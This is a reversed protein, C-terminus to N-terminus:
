SSSFPSTGHCRQVKRKMSAVETGSRRPMLAGSDIRHDRGIQRWPHRISPVDAPVMRWARGRPGRAARLYSASSRYTGLHSGCGVANSRRTDPLKTLPAANSRSPTLATGRPFCRTTQASDTEYVPFQRRTLLECRPLPCAPGFTQYRPIIRANSGSDPRASAHPLLPLPAPRVAYLGPRVLGRIVSTVRADMYLARRVPGRAVIAWPTGSARPILSSRQDVQRAIRNQTRGCGRKASDPWPHHVGAAPSLRSLCRPLAPEPLDPRQRQAGGADRRNPTLHWVAGSLRERPRARSGEGTGTTFTRVRRGERPEAGVGRTAEGEV